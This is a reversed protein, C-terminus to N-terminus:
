PQSSPSSETAFIERPAPLSSPSAESFGIDHPAPPSFTVPVAVIRSSPGSADAPRSRSRAAARPASKSGTSSRKSITKTRRRQPPASSSVAATTSAAIRWSFATPENAACVSPPVDGVSRAPSSPSHHPRPRKRQRRSPSRRSTNM